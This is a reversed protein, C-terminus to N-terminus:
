LNSLRWRVHNLFRLYIRHSSTVPNGTSSTACRMKRTHSSRIFMSSRLGEHHESELEVMTALRTTEWRVSNNSHELLNFSPMFAVKTILTKHCSKAPLGAIPGSM